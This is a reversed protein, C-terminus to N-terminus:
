QTCHADGQICMEGLKLKAFRKALTSKAPATDLYHKELWAKAEFTNKKAL